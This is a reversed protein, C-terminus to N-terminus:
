LKEQYMRWMQKKLIQRSRESVEDNRLYLITGSLQISDGRVYGHNEQFFNTMVDLKRNGDTITFIGKVLTPNDSGIKSFQTKLYGSIKFKWPLISRKLDRLQFEQLVVPEAASIECNENNFAGMLGVNTYKGILLKARQYNGRNYDTSTACHAKELYIINDM